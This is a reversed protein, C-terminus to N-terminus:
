DKLIDLIKNEKTINRCQTNDIVIDAVTIIIIFSIALLNEHAKKFFGINIDKNKKNRRM